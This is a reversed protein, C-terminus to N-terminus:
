NGNYHSEKKHLGCIDQDRSCPNSKYERFWEERTIWKTQNNIRIQYLFPDEFDKLLKILSNSANRLCTLLLQLM